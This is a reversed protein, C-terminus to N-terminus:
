RSGTAGSGVRPRMGGDRGGERKGKRMREEEREEEGEKRSTDWDPAEDGLEEGEWGVSSPRMSRHSLGARAAEKM